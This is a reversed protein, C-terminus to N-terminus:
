ATLIDSHRTDIKHICNMGPEFDPTEEEEAEPAETVVEEVVPEEPQVVPVVPPVVVEPETPAVVEPVVPKPQALIQGNVDSNGNCLDQECRDKHYNSLTVHKDVPFDSQCVCM